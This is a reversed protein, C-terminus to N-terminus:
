AGFLIGRYERKREERWNGGGRLKGTRNWNRGGIEKLDM